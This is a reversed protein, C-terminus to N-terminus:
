SQPWEALRGLAATAEAWTPASKGTLARYLNRVETEPVQHAAAVHVLSREHRRRIRPSLGKLLLCDYCEASDVTQFDRRERKRQYSHAARWLAQAWDDTHHHIPCTAPHAICPM